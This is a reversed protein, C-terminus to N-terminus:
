NTPRHIKPYAVRIKNTVTSCLVFCIFDHVTMAGIHSSSTSPNHLQHKTGEQYGSVSGFHSADWGGSVCVLEKEGGEPVTAWSLVTMEPEHPNAQERWLEPFTVNILKVLEKTRSKRSKEQRRNWSISAWFQLSLSIIYVYMLGVIIGHLLFVMFNIVSFHFM